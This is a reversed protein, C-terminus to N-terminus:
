QRAEVVGREGQDYIQWALGKTFWQDAGEVPANGQVRGEREKRKTETSIRMAKDRKELLEPLVQGDATFSALIQPPGYPVKSSCNGEDDVPWLQHTKGYTNCLHQLSPIEATEVVMEPVGTKAIQVLLGSECEYKHSHWFKKENEDLSEFLKQSIIYEVAILKADKTNSDYILCQRRDADLMSCYHYSIVQRKKDNPYLHLGCFAECINALPNFSQLPMAATSLVATGSSIQGKTEDAEHTPPVPMTTYEEM